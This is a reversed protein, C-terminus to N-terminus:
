RWSDAAVTLQHAVQSSLSAQPGNATVHFWINATRTIGAASASVVLSYRGPEVNPAIKVRLTASSGMAVVRRARVGSPTSALKLAVAGEFGGIRDVSVNLAVVSGPGATSSELSASVAFDPPARFTGIWLAKEHTGDRDTRTRWDLKGVAQLAM